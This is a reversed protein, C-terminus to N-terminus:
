FLTGHRLSRDNIRVRYPFGSSFTGCIEDPCAM